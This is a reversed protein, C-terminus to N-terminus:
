LYLVCDSVKATQGYAAYVHEGKIRGKEVCVFHPSTLLIEEAEQTTVQHNVALKDVFSDLWIVNEIKM